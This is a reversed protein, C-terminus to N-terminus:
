VAIDGRSSNSFFNIKIGNPSSVKNRFFLAIQAYPLLRWLVQLVQLTDRSLHRKSLSKKDELLCYFLFIETM